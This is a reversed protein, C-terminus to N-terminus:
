LSLVPKVGPLCFLQVSSLVNPGPQLGVLDKLILESPKISM